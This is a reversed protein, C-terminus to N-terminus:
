GGLFWGVGRALEGGCDGSDEVGDGRGLPQRAAGHRLEGRRDLVGDDGADSGFEEGIVEDAIGDPGGGRDRDQAGSELAQAGGLGGGAFRGPRDPAAVAVRCGSVAFGIIAAGESAGAAVGECCM